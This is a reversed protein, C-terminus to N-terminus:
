KKPNRRTTTPLVMSSFRMIPNYPLTSELVTFEPSSLGHIAKVCLFKSRHSDVLRSFMRPLRFCTELLQDMPFSLLHLYYFADIRYVGPYRRYQVPDELKESLRAKPDDPHHVVIYELRTGAEVITGRREMRKALQVHAPLSRQNYLCGVCACKECHKRQKIDANWREKEVYKKVQEITLPLSIKIEQVASLRLSKRVWERAIQIMVTDWGRQALTQKPSSQLIHNDSAEPNERILRSVFELVGENVNINKLGALQLPKDPYFHRATFDAWEAITGERIIQVYETSNIRHQQSYKITTTANMGRGFIGTFLHEM